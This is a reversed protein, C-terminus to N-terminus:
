ARRGGSPCDSFYASFVGLFCKSFVSAQLMAEAQPMAENVHAASLCPAPHFTRGTRSCFDPLGSPRGKLRGENATATRQSAM